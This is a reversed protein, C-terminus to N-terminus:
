EYALVKGTLTGIYITEDVIAPSASVARDVRNEWVMEGSKIKYVRLKGNATIVFVLEDVIVPSSCIGLSSAGVLRAKWLMVGSSEEFCYLYQRKFGVVVFM